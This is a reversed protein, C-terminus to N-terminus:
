HLYRKVCFGPSWCAPSEEEQYIGGNWTIRDTLLEDQLKLCNVAASKSQNGIKGFLKKANQKLIFQVGVLM